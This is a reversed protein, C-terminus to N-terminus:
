YIYESPFNQCPDTFLLVNKQKVPKFMYIVFPFNSNICYEGSKLDDWYTPTPNGTKEGDTIFVSASISNLADAVTKALSSKNVKYFM